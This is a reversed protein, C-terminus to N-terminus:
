LSSVLKHYFKFRKCKPVDIRIQTPDDHMANPLQRTKWIIAMVDCWVSVFARTIKDTPLWFLVRVICSCATCYLATSLRAASRIIWGFQVRVIINLIIKDLACVTMIKIELGAGRMIENYNTFCLKKKWFSYSCANPMCVGSFSLFTTWPIELELSPSVSERRHM